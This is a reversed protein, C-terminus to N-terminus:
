KLRRILKKIKSLLVATRFSFHLSTWIILKTLYPWSGYDGWKVTKLFDYRQHFDDNTLSGASVALYVAGLQISDIGAKFQEQPFMQRLISVYKERDAVHKTSIGRVASNQNSVQDLHYLASPLYAVSAGANILELNFVKDEGYNLGEVYRIGHEQYFSRRLLKNWPGGLLRNIFDGLLGDKTYSAPEQRNYITKRWKEEFVDCMVMDANSELAKNYLLELYDPEVWDDSDAHITYDGSAHDIGFQRTTGIGENPKHFVKFRSDSAAIDDCIASSSDSSGDDILLVEFDRLSQVKLSDTLRRITKEANYVAVVVSIKPKNM